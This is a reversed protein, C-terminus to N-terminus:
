NNDKCQWNNHLQKIVERQSDREAEKKALEIQEIREEEAKFQNIRTSVCDYVDPFEFWSRPTYKFAIFTRWFTNEGNLLKLMDREDKSMLRNNISNYISDYLKDYEIQVYCNLSDPINLKNDVKKYTVGKVVIGTNEMYHNLSNKLKIFNYGNYHLNFKEHYNHATEYSVSSVIASALLLIFFIVISITINVTKKSHKLGNPDNRFAKKDM